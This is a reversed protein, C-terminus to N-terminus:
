ERKFIAEDGVKNGPTATFTIVMRLDIGWPNRMEFTYTKTQGIGTHNTDAGITLGRNCIREGFLHTAAESYEELINFEPMGEARTINLMKELIYLRESIAKVVENIKKRYTRFDAYTPAPDIEQM